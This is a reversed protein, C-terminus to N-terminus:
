LLEELIMNFDLDFEEKLFNDVKGIDSELKEVKEELSKIQKEQKRYRSTYFKIFNDQRNLLEAFPIGCDALSVGTTYTNDSENDILEYAKLVYREVM